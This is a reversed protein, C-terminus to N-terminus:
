EYLTLSLGAASSFRMPTDLYLAASTPQTGNIYVRQVDTINPTKYADRRQQARKDEKNCKDDSTQLIIMNTLTSNSSKILSVQLLYFTNSIDMAPLQLTHPFVAAIYLVPFSPTSYLIFNSIHSCFLFSYFTLLRLIYSSM